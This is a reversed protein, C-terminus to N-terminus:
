SDLDSSSRELILSIYDSKVFDQKGYGLRQAFRVIHNREGELELFNGVATEDLCIRLKKTRYVTRYKQYHFVSKFGLAMLIQKMQRHNRVETEFEDRVKFKRSKKPPGKFTLYAKKGCKRLRLASRKALLPDGQLDYLTNEEFLRDRHLVAGAEQLKERATELDSVPLKIEIELM